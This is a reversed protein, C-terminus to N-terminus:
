LAQFPSKKNKERYRGQKKLIKAKGIIGNKM